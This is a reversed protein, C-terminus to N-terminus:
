VTEVPLDELTMMSLQANAVSNSLWELTFEDSLFRWVPMWGAMMIDKEEIDSDWVEDLTLLSDSGMTDSVPQVSVVGRTLLTGDKMQIFMAKHVTSEGHMEAFDTGPVRFSALGQYQVGKPKFDYEWTPMYFEGQRGKMRLFFDLLEQAQEFTRQLYTASRRETGYAVPTRQTVMGRGYDLVESEHVFTGTVENLWNPKALFMERGRFMSTPPAVPVAAESLPTVDFGVSVTAVDNTLRPVSTNSNIHGTLGPYMHTGAPWRQSSGTRLTVETASASEVVRIDEYGAHRLVVQAGPVAWFPSEAFTLTTEGTLLALTTIARRPLEAIAFPRHQWYWMEGKFARFRDQNVMSQFSVQKRPTHRNALRQERGSRSVGIATAFSYQVRYTQGTPPWAPDLGLLRVRSGTVPLTYSWPLDFEWLIQGDLLAAGEETAIVSYDVRALPKLLYPVAAGEIRLGATEDYEIHTLQVTKEIFANWIQVGVRAESTIAGFDITLPEIHIRNYFDDFFTRTKTATSIKPYMVVTSPRLEANTGSSIHEVDAYVGWVPHFPLGRPAKAILTPTSAYNPAGLDLKSGSFDAM